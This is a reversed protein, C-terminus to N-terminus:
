TEKNSIYEVFICSQVSSRRMVREALEEREFNKEGHEHDLSRGNPFV